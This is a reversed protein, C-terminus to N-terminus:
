LSPLFEWGLDACIKKWIADQLSLKERSRLLQFSGLFEDQDLLQLMKYLAFSYSLFNKRNSPAHKLFPAQVQKFMTRLKEELEAPLHPMPVGNLRYLLLPVHEYFKHLRLRKLIDKVKAYTLTAVNTIKQKKIELLIKDYIEEPIETTEKGQIQALGHCEVSSCIVKTYANRM